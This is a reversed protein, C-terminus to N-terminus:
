SILKDDQWNQLRRHKEVTTGSGARRGVVPPEKVRLEVPDNQKVLKNQSSM